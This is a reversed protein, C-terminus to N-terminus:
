KKKKMSAVLWLLFLNSHLQHRRDIKMSNHGYIFQFPLHSITQPCVLRHFDYPSDMWNVNEKVKKTYKHCSFFLFLLFFGINRFQKFCILISLYKCREFFYSKKHKNVDFFFFISFYFDFQLQENWISCFISVYHDRALKEITKRAIKHESLM